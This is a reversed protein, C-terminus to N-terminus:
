EELEVLVTGTTVAAGEEVHVARVVAEYPSSLPTEMKMAELVVLPQRPQVKDGQAVLVRVVTGPMPALVASQEAGAGGHDSAAAYETLFATATEGARLKPHAVLWRLFSLNTTVGEVESENLAGRLRDLADDRDIGHAILKAIMPDYAIGIEDGEEVGADVRIDCPLRLKTIRGAQPFFTQPDEAYLRVEL